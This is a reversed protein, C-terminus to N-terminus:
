ASACWTIVSWAVNLEVPPTNRLRSPRDSGALPSCNADVSGGRCPHIRPGNCRRIVADATAWCTSESRASTVAISSAPASPPVNSRAVASAGSGSAMRPGNSPM